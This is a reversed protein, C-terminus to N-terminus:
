LLLLEGLSPSIPNVNPTITPPPTASTTWEHVRGAPDLLERVMLSRKVGGALYIWIAAEIRTIPRQPDFRLWGDYDVIGQVAAERVYELAWGPIASLDAFVVRDYAIANEVPTLGLARIIMVVAEARTIPRSPHVLNLTAEQPIALAIATIKAFEARTLSGQPRFTGDPFATVAGRNALSEVASRGLSASDHHPFGIIWENGVVDRFIPASALAARALRARVKAAPVDRWFDEWLQSFSVGVGQVIAEEFEIGGAMANLIAVLGTMGYAHIIYSIVAHSVAYAERSPTGALQAARFMRTLDDPSPRNPGAAVRSVEYYDFPGRGSLASSCGQDFWLPLNVKQRVHIALLAHILEDRAVILTTEEDVVWQVYMRVSSLRGGGWSTVCVGAAWCPAGSERFFRLPDEYFTIAADVMSFITHDLGLKNYLSDLSRRLGKALGTTRTDGLQPDSYVRLGDFNGSVSLLPTLAHIPDYRWGGPISPGAVVELVSRLDANHIDNGVGSFTVVGDRDVVVLTPVGWIGYRATVSLFEDRLHIFPLPNSRLWRRASAVDEMLNISVFEVGRARFEPALERLRYLTSLALAYPSAWFVYAAPSNGRLSATSFLNGEFDPLVFEPALMGVKPLNLRRDRDRTDATPAPRSILRDLDERFGRLLEKPVDPFFRRTVRVIGNTDVGISGYFGEMLGM